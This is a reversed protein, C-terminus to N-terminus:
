EAYSNTMWVLVKIMKKLEIIYIKVVRAIMSFCNFDASFLEFFM